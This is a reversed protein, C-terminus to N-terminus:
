DRRGAKPASEAQIDGTKSPTMRYHLAMKEDVEYFMGGIEQSEQVPFYSYAGNSSTLGRGAHVNYCSYARPWCRPFEQGDLAFEGTFPLPERPVTWYHCQISNGYPGKAPMKWIGMHVHPIREWRSLEGLVAGQPIVTGPEPAGSPYISEPWDFHGLSLCYKAQGDNYFEFFHYGNAYPSSYEYTIDTPAIAHRGSEFCTSGECIDLAYQDYTGYIHLLANTYGGDAPIYGPGSPIPMKLPKFKEESRRSQSFLNEKPVLDKPRPVDYSAFIGPRIGGQRTRPEVAQSQKAGAGLIVLSIILLLLKVRRSVAPTNLQPDCM